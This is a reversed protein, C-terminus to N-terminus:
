AGINIISGHLFAPGHALGVEGYLQRREGAGLKALEEVFMVGKNPVELFVPSLFGIDCILVANSPMFKNWVVNIMSFDTMISTINIGAATRSTPLNIGNKDGYIETVKQKLGAGVFMVMNSFYAGNDAMKKYLSQLMAFDLDDGIANIESTGTCLPLMGRTTSADSVSTSSHYAGNIFSYEIDRATPILLSNKIQFALEDNPNPAQGATNLGSMRGKNALKHYSLDTTLQHIQCVNKEQIRAISRAAPAVASAQESIKPQEPDPYSFLQNTAFEANDSVMGGTMGGIMTLLPTSTPDATFLEGAFNPLTWTTGVGTVVAM